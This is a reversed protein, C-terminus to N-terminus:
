YTEPKKKCKTQGHDIENMQTDKNENLCLSSKKPTNQLNKMERLKKKFM